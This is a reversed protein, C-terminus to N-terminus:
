KKYGNKLDAGVIKADVTHPPGEWGRQLTVMVIAARDEFPSKLAGIVAVDLPSLFKEDKEEATFITKSGLTPTYLDLRVSRVRDLGFDEDFDKRTTLKSRYAKGGSNFNRGLLVFRTPVIKHENLKENFREQNRKWLKQIDDELPAGDAGVRSEPDNKFQWVIQDTKLDQIRLEAFYCGCAEDVPEVYYAFKGSM